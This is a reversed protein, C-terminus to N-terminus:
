ASLLATMLWLTPMGILVAARPSGTRAAALVAGATATLPAPAFGIGGALTTEAIATAALAAFAAPAVLASATDLQTPLHIRDAATIMSLRLLYSGVGAAVIVLWATM